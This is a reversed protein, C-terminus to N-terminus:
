DVKRPPPEDRIERLARWDHKFSIFLHPLEEHLASYLEFLAVPLFMVLVVLFRLPINLVLWLRRLWVPGWPLHFSLWLRSDKKM